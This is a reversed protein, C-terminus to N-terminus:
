ATLALTSPAAVMPRSRQLCRDLCADAKSRCRGCCTGVGLSEALHALTRAGQDVAEAIDRDTVSNCICVYMKTCGIGLM